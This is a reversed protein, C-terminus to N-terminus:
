PKPNKIGGGGIDEDKSTEKAYVEGNALFMGIAKIIAVLLINVLLLIKNLLAEDQFGWQTLVAVVSPIILILLIDEMKRWARPAPRKRNRRSLTVRSM